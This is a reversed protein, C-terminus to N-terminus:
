CIDTSGLKGDTRKGTKKVRVDKAYTEYPLLVIQCFSEGKKYTIIDNSVNHVIATIDGTYDPDIPCTAVVLGKNAASTRSCLIGFNGKSPTISIKLNITNTSLPIFEVDETLVIDIGADNQYGKTLRTTVKVDPKIKLGYKSKFELYTKDFKDKTVKYVGSVFDNSPHRMEGELFKYCAKLDALHVLESTTESVPGIINTTFVEEEADVYDRLNPIADKTKSLIDGRFLELSDHLMSSRIMQEFNIFDKLETKEKVIEDYLDIVCAVVLHTHEALNEKNRVDRGNWRLLTRMHIANDIINFNECFEEVSTIEKFM